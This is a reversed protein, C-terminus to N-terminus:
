TTHVMYWHWNRNLFSPILLAVRFLIPCNYYVCCRAIYASIYPASRVPKGLDLVEGGKELVEEIPSYFYKGGCISITVTHKMDDREQEVSDNPFPYKGAHYAHYRLGGEYIHDRISETLSATDKNSHADTDTNDSGEVSNYVSEGHSSRSAKALIHSSPSPPQAPPRGTTSM